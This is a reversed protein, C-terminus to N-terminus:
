ILPHNEVSFLSLMSFFFLPVVFLLEGQMVTYLFPFFAAQFAASEVFRRVLFLGVLSATGIVVPIMTVFQVMVRSFALFDKPNEIGQSRLLVNPTVSVLLRMSRDTLDLSYHYAAAICIHFGFLIAYAQSSMLLERGQELHSIGLFGILLCVSMISLSVISERNM